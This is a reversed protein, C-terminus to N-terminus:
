PVWLERDTIRAAKVSDVFAVRIAALVKIFSTSANVPERLQVVSQQPGTTRRAFVLVFLLSNCTLSLRLPMFGLM